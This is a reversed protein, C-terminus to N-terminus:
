GGFTERLYAVVDGTEEDDLAVPAMDEYGSQIVETLEDASRSPVTVTLDAAGGTGLKGDDGHCSSCNAAYLEAGAVPDGTVESACALLLSLMMARVIAM